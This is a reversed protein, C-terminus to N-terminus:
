RSGSSGEARGGKLLLFLGLVMLALGSVTIAQLGLDGLRSHAHVDDRIIGLYVPGGAPVVSLILIAAGALRITKGTM